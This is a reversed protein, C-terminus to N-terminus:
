FPVFDGVMDNRAFWPTQRGETAEVVARKVSAYLESAEIVGNRNRDTKSDSLAAIVASTFVGGGQGASEESLERGKSASFILIGSPARDLLASVSADNTAFFDTGANGSQCTDLFVAIKTHAKALVNSLDGWPLATHEIDDVKTASTALYYNKDPAEVGHGAIFLIVSDGPEAKAVTENLKALIAERSAAADLLLSQSVIEVSTGAKDQLAKAFRAADSGAFNLQQIKEDDYHDVGISVLHVRRRPATGPGADFTVPQSYLGSPGRALFAVWRAGPLRKANVDVTKADGAVKIADTMLGDQYVRVEDVPDGGSIRVKAAIADGTFNPTVAFAPPFETVRPAKFEEGAMARKLLNDAHFQKHFQELTYEGGRGPFRLAVHSAGEPTSDFQGSRTWVVVEDDVIRGSLLVPVKESEDENDEYKQSPRLEIVQFGGDKDLKALTKLDHSLSVRQIVDPSPLNVIQSILKREEIDYVAVAFSEQSWVVLYRNFFLEGKYGCAYLSYFCYMGNPRYDGKGLDLEARLNLLQGPLRSDHLFGYAVITPEELGRLCSGGIATLRFGEGQVQEVDLNGEGPIIVDIGGGARPKLEGCEEKEFYMKRSEIDFHISPDDIFERFVISKPIDIVTREPFPPEVQGEIRKLARSRDLTGMPVGRNIELGFDGLRKERQLNLDTERLQVPESGRSAVRLPDKDVLFTRAEAEKLLIPQIVFPILEAALRKDHAKTFDSMRVLKLGDIMEWRQPTTFPTVLLAGLLDPEKGLGDVHYATSLDSTLSSAEALRVPEKCVYVADNNELDIRFGFVGLMYGGHLCVQEFVIRTENLLSQIIPMDDSSSSTYIVFSDQDDWSINANEAHVFWKGRDLIVKGDIADRTTYQNQERAIIFRGSTSFRPEQGVADALLAGTVVDILHYRPGYIELRRKGDPSAIIPDPKALDFRDAIVIEPAGPEVTFELGIPAPDPNEGCQTYGIIAASLRLPGALLPRIKVEGSQPADKVHLPIIVRTEKVFQQIRFPAKAKPTLAYFGTGQFRVPGDAALVLYAPGLPPTGSVKWSLARLSEAQVTLGDPVAVSLTKRLRTLTASAVDCPQDAQGILHIPNPLQQVTGIPGNRRVEAGPLPRQEPAQQVPPPQFQKAQTQAPQAAAVQVQGGLEAIRRQYSAEACAIDAGCQNRAVGWDYQRRRADDASSGKLEAMKAWFLKALEADLRSLEPSACVTREAEGHARRCDFSPKGEVGIVRSQTVQGGGRREVVGAVTPDRSPSLPGIATKQFCASQKINYTYGACGPAALCLRECQEVSAVGRVWKADNGPADMNPYRSVKVGGPGYPTQAWAPAPYMTVQSPPASLYARPLDPEQVAKSDIPDLALAQDYDARSEAYAHKNYYADGRRTYALAYKPDLRIAENYDQIARDYNAKNAYAIGRVTYAHAYNPDLRIAENYDQIAHDYNAKNAYSAGRVTYAYAYKPDLRIAENCDQIARDHNAKTAYADGRYAYAMARDHASLTAGRALVQTCAAIRNDPNVSVCFEWAADAACVALGLWSALLLTMLFVIPLSRDM